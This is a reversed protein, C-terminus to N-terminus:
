SLILLDGGIIRVSDQPLCGDSILDAVDLHLLEEVLQGGLVEEADYRPSGRQFALALKGDEAQPM